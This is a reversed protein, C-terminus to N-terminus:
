WHWYVTLVRFINANYRISYMWYELRLFSSPSTKMGLYQGPLGRGPISAKKKKADGEWSAPGSQHGDTVLVHSHAIVIVGVCSSKVRTWWKVESGWGSGEWGGLCWDRGEPAIEADRPAVPGIREPCRFRSPMDRFGLHCYIDSAAM